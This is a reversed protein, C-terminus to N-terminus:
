IDCHLTGGIVYDNKHVTVSTRGSVFQNTPSKVTVDLMWRQSGVATSLDTPMELVFNGDSDTM